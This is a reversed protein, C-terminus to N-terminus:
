YAYSVGEEIKIEFSKDANQIINKEHTIIIFQINAKESVEKLVNAVTQHLDKQLQRFPEDM